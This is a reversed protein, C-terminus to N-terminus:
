DTLRDVVIIRGPPAARRQRARLRRGILRPVAIGALWATAGLGAGTPGGIAWGAGAFLPLLILELVLRPAHLRAALRPILVLNLWLIAGVVALAIALWVAVAIILALVALALLVAVALRWPALAVRTM